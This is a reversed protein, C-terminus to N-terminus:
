AEALVRRSGPAARSGGLVRGARRAVARVAIQGGLPKALVPLVDGEWVDRDAPSLSAQGTEAVRRAVEVSRRSDGLLGAEIAEAILARLEPDVTRSM